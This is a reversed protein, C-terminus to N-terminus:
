SYHKPLSLRHKRASRSCPVGHLRFIKEAVSGLMLKDLGTRGQTGLVVLAICSRQVIDLLTDVVPGGNVVAEYSVDDSHSSRMLEAIKLGAAEQSATLLREVTEPPMLGYGDSNVVHTVHLRSRFHRSISVAYHLAAGSAASFDTAFLVNRVAPAKWEAWKIGGPFPLRDAEHQDSSIVPASQAIAYFNRLAM